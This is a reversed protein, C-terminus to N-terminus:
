IMVLGRDEYVSPGDSAAAVPGLEMLKVACFLAILPDIKASGAVEKDIAVSNGKQVAKANSVCWAMMESGGHVLLGDHLKWEATHIASTLGVGQRVPEIQGLRVVRGTIPDIEHTKFGQAVLADILAGIDAPDVGIANEAPLKGSERVAALVEVVQTVIDQMTDAMVLDGQKVFDNLRSAIAKHRELVVPLGWAKAWCLWRESDKERGVAALGFLDGLGGGDVGVTVVECRDLLEALTLGPEANDLWYDAGSWRQSHLGMGIEINLHQSAWRREEEAGKEVAEAYTEELLDLHVSRGLNPNVMHWLKPDRWAAEEARQVEEPFEYLLPLTNAAPGTIRGDRIGRALQLEAAFLGAPVEDSQTTIEILFADPRSVMGGWLQGMVRQAYHRKGLIHIEDVLVGKPKVGTAVGEDFTQIKLTSETVRDVITKLHSKVHFRDRLVPDFAIMGAAQDFAGHAIEQSPGYLFYPQRPAPDVLMATLMIAGSGTTKNNKKPVLQLVKRVMRRGSPLLSGFVAAPIERQWDGTAEGLTPNGSVDPLRLRNFISVARSAAARDLPLDPM